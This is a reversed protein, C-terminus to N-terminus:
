CENADVPARLRVLHADDVTRPLHKELFRETVRAFTETVEGLGYQLCYVSLDLSNRHRDFHWASWDNVGQEFLVDGYERDVGLLEIAKPISMGHSSRFVIPAISQHECIRQSGVPRRKPTDAETIRHEDLKSLEAAHVVFQFCLADRKAIAKALLHLAVKRLNERESADVIVPPNPIQELFRRCGFESLAHTECFYARQQFAVSNSAQSWLLYSFSEHRFRQM